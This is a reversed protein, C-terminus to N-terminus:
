FGSDHPYTSDVPAEQVVEFFKGAADAAALLARTAREPDPGLGRTVKTLGVGFTLVDAAGTSLTITESSPEARYHYAAPATSATGPPICATV